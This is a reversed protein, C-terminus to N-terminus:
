IRTGIGGWNIYVEVLKFPIPPFYSEIAYSDQVSSIQYGCNINQGSFVDEAM